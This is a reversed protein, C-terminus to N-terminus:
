PEREVWANRANAPLAGWNAAISVTARNKKQDITYKFGTTRPSVGTAIAIYSQGPAAGATTDLICAYSFYRARDAPVVSAGCVDLRAYTRYHQFYGDMWVQIDSLNRFAEALQDRRARDNYAPVAFAIAAIIAAIAAVAIAGLLARRSFGGTRNMAPLPFVM